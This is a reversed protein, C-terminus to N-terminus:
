DWDHWGGSVRVVSGSGSLSDIASKNFKISGGGSGPPQDACDLSVISGYFTNAGGSFTVEQAIVIAYLDQNGTAKIDVAGDVVIMVPNDESTGPFDTFSLTISTNEDGCVGESGGSYGNGAYEYVNGSGKSCTAPTNTVPDGTGPCFDGLDSAGFFQELLEQETATALNTDGDVIDPGRTTNSNSLQDDVGDVSIYTKIAAGIDATGGSWITLAEENNTLDLSGSTFNIAGKSVLPVNPAGNAVPEASIRDRITRKVTLDDSFAISIVELYDGDQELSVTADTYSPIVYAASSALTVSSDLSTSVVFAMGYDLGSQAKQFAQNARVSNALNRKDTLVSESMNFTILLIVILLIVATVLTAVGRQKSLSHKM